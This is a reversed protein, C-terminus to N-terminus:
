SYALFQLNVPSLRLTTKIISEGPVIYFYLRVLQWYQNDSM